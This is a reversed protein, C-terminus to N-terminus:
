QYKPPYFYMGKHILLWQTQKLSGVCNGLPKKDRVRKKKRKKEKKKEQGLIKERKREKERERKREEKEKKRKRKRGLDSGRKFSSKHNRVRFPDRSQKRRKDSEAKTFRNRYSVKKLFYYRYRPM